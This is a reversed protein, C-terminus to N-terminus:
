LLEEEQKVKGRPIKKGQFSRNEMKTDRKTKQGKDTFMVTNSKNRIELHSARRNEGNGEEVRFSGKTGRSRQPKWLPKTKTKKM